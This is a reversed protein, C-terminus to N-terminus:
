ECRGFLVVEVGYVKSRRQEYRWTLRKDGDDVGLWDAIGDRCAKLSATAGDDDMLRPALRTMTITCPLEPRKSTPGLAYFATQRHVKARGARVAWHERVNQTNVTRIPINIPKM